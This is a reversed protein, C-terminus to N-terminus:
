AYARERRPMGGTGRSAPVKGPRPVAAGLGANRSVAQANGQRCVAAGPRANRSVAQANGQRCVAAGPRANRSVAQANGQRCVAAGPEAATQMTLAKDLLELNARMANLYSDAEDSGQVCPDLYLPTAGTEKQVTKCMEKGYREEALIFRVDYQRIAAVIDAVEGASVQREEDLDMSAAVTLRLEQATYAFAEHFIIVNQAAAKKLVEQQMTHLAELKELYRGCNDEYVTRHAADLESLGDAVAQVQMKYDAISMWAHANDELLPIQRSADIFALQPYRGAVDPLFSEIGAGNIVFADARSLVKMDAATLQYDHMCGSQPESLNQLEVGPCDGVINKTAIYMPYFSTVVRFAQKEQGAREYHVYATTFGIGAFMLALLMIATFVYKNRM